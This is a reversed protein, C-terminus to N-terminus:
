LVILDRGYASEGKKKRSQQEKIRGEMGTNKEGEKQGEEESTLQRRQARRENEINKGDKRVNQKM